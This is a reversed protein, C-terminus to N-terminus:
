YLYGPVSVYRQLQNSWFFLYAKGWRKNEARADNIKKEAENFGSAYSIHFIENSMMWLMKIPDRKIEQEKTNTKERMKTM